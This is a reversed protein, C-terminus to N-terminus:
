HIGKSKYAYARKIKSITHFAYKRIYKNYPPAYSLVRDIQPLAKNVIYYAREQLSCKHLYKRFLFNNNNGITGPFYNIKIGTKHAIYNFSIQDRKSYNCIEEWWAENFSNVKKSNRRLIVPLETLGYNSPYGEQTYRSVQQYISEKACMGRTIIESAEDYICNRMLHRFVVIDADAAMYKRVLWAVTNSQRMMVNGDMWLSYDCDPFLRHPMMKYWKATFLDTAFSFDKKEIRWPKVAHKIHSDVFAKFDDGTRPQKRLYDYGGMIATYVITKM